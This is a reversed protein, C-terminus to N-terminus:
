RLILTNGTILAAEDSALFAIVKAVAEPAAIHILKPDLRVRERVADTVWGTDTVPPHVANATIGHRALEWAASMTYNSLAAKAAGYSVESPFGDPGGSILSIVRGWHQARKEIRAGLEAILLAAARVDVAFQQEITAFSVRTMTRGLADGADDTFTDAVWGTANNVLIDVPGIASDARDFLRVPGDPLALDIELSDAVGGGSRISDVVDSADTARASRYADPIGPDVPDDLRFYTIFVRAGGRALERATAAGIGHNAGTIIAAHGALPLTQQTERSPLRMENM